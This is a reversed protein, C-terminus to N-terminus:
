LELQVFIRPPLAMNDPLKAIGVIGDQRHGPGSSAKAPQQKSPMWVYSLADALLPARAGVDWCENAKQIGTNSVQYSRRDRNVKAITPVYRYRTVHPSSAIGSDSCDYPATAAAPSISFTETINESAQQQQDAISSWKLVTPHCDADPM